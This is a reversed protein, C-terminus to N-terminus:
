ISAAQEDKAIKAELSAIKNHFYRKKAKEMISEARNQYFQQQRPTRANWIEEECSRIAKREDDTLIDWVRPMNTEERHRNNNYFM